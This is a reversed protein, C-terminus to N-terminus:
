LMVVFVQFDLTVPKILLFCSLVNHRERAFYRHSPAQGGDLVSNIVRDVLVLVQSHFQDFPDIMQM